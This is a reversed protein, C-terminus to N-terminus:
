QQTHEDFTTYRDLRVDTWDGVRGDPWHVRVRPPVTSSGLGALVRPDNASAYSGDARARRWLVPHGERAIEVRAGVMDRRHTDIFRLGIWHHRSGVANLLVRVPGNNIGVVVDTDGDNDLDGFAAGRSVQMTTFAPGGAATVDDFRGNGRNRFLLGPQRLPFPDHQRMLAEIIQVAGNVMLLDLSGDNDIDLFATGFGTYPLGAHAIGAAAGHNEFNAAGDNVYLDPGEGTLNAVVLDEDGDNDFDGADVGMGAKAKGHESLAVGALPGTNTFTGNRRNIWLQNEEGDNAVFLDLWGDRDFDAAVVGLAPGFQTEMGAAATVDTFTGNRNNHYLRSHQARYVKPACYARRGSATFCPTNSHLDWDLYHGVFLDLWGDRDFDFFTASVSWGADNVGSAQSVDTFTGDCRNRFLPNSGLATVYLDPCGDNDFDGVAVGMGYGHTVIGSATTVDVFHMTRTGDPSVELDNRFLRGGPGQGAPPPFLSAGSGVIEGQVVFLDLDGDNDYDFLAVGPAMVEPYFFEGTMGNFHRFSLGTRATADDFFPTQTSTRCAAGGVILVLLAGAVAVSLWRADVVPSTRSGCHAM